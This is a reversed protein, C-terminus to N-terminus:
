NIFQVELFEVLPKEHCALTTNYFPIKRLSSSPVIMSKIESSEKGSSGDCIVVKLSITENYDNYVEIEWKNFKSGTYNKGACITRYQIGPSDKDKTWSVWESVQSSSKCSNFMLGIILLGAISYLVSIKYDIAAM